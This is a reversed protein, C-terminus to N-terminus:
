CVVRLPFWSIIPTFSNKLKISNAMAYESTTPESPTAMIKSVLATNKLFTDRSSLGGTPSITKAIM